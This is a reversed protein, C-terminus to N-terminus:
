KNKSRVWSKSETGNLLRVINTRHKVIVLVTLVALLGFFMKGAVSTEGSGCFEYWAVILMVVAAVMSALSVYRFILMMVLWAAVAYGGIVPSLAFLAGASTAVGKGGKFKLFCTYTHGLVVAFITGLMWGAQEADMAVPDEGLMHAMLLVPLFGKLFDALFVIIGWKKGLVRGANTAGINHSGCERLDIGQMKGAFYGFPVSGILYSGLLIFGYEM